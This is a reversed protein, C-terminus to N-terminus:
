RFWAETFQQNQSLFCVSLAYTRKKTMRRYRKYASLEANEVRSHRQRAPFQAEEDSESLRPNILRGLRLPEKNLIEAASPNRISLAERDFCVTGGQSRVVYLCFRAHSYHSGRVDRPTDLTVNVNHDVIETCTPGYSLGLLM